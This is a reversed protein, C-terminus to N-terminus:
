TIPPCNSEGREKNRLLTTISGRGDREVIQIICEDNQIRNTIQEGEM